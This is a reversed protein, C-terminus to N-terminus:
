SGRHEISGMEISIEASRKIADELGVSFGKLLTDFNTTVHFFGSTARQIIDIAEKANKCQMIQKWLAMKEDSIGRDGEKKKVKDEIYDDLNDATSDVLDKVVKESLKWSILKATM